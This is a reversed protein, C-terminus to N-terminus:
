TFASKKLECQNEQQTRGQTNMRKPLVETKMRIFCKKEVNARDAAVRPSHISGPASSLVGSLM